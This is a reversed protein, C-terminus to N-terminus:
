VPKDTFGMVWNLVRQAKHVDMLKGHYKMFMDTAKEAEEGSNNRLIKQWSDCARAFMMAEGELTVIMKAVDFMSRGHNKAFESNRKIRAKDKDM